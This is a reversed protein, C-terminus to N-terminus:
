SKPYYPSIMFYVIVGSISVYLWLPFTWKSLKRHKASMNKLGYYVSFLVFPVVVASLVIHTLLVFYYIFALIGEGGYKTAEAQSHYLVYSILFLVSLGTASLMCAKHAKFNKKKIFIFGTILLLAVCSNLSASVSPLIMVNLGDVFVSKQPLYLLFAVILPVLISLVWIIRQYFKNEPKDTQGSLSDEQIM